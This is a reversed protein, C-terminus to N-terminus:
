RSPRERPVTIVAFRPGYGAFVPDSLGELSAERSNLNWSVLLKNRPVAIQAHPAALYTFEGPRGATPTDVLLGTPRWPGQPRRATWGILAAGDLERDKAITLWRGDALRTMAANNFPPYTLVPTAGLPDRSWRRGAWFHWRGFV